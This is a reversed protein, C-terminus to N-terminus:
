NFIYNFIAEGVHVKSTETENAKERAYKVAHQIHEIKELLHVQRTQPFMGSLKTTSWTGVNVDETYVDVQAPHKDTAEAKVHNRMIKKSRTTGVPSTLYVGTDKDLKWTEAADLVPLKKLVMHLDVLQKELFLLYTVPVDKILVTGNPLLVDAVARMNTFDKVATVDLLKTLSKAINHLIEEGTIQVKTYEAPLKDGEDDKPTYQRSIGTLLAPKQLQHYADTVERLVDVKIGKEVAIVQNLKSIIKRRIPNIAVPYSPSSRYSIVRSMTM